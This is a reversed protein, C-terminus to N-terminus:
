IGFKEWPSNYLNAHAQICATKLEMHKHRLHGKTEVYNEEKGSRGHVKRCDNQEACIVLKTLQLILLSSFSSIRIFKFCTTFNANLTQRIDIKGWM